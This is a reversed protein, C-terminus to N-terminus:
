FNITNVFFIHLNCNRCLSNSGEKIYNWTQQYTGSVAINDSRILSLFEKPQVSFREDFENALKLKEITTLTRQIDHFVHELNCSFYYVSYDIKAIKSTTSLKRLTASKLVNRDKIEDVHRTKIKNFYYEAKDVDAYEICNENVFAGDTDILHVIQVIDSKKFRNRNM